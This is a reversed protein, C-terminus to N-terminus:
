AAVAVTGVIRAVDAPVDLGQLAREVLVTCHKRTRCHLMYSWPWAVSPSRTSSGDGGADERETPYWRGRKDPNGEPHTTRNKRAAYIAAVLSKTATM